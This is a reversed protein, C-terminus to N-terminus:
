ALVAALSLLPYTVCDTAQSRNGPDPAERLPM